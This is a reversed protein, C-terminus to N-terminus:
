VHARWTGSLRAAHAKRRFETSPRQEAMTEHSEGDKSTHEEKSKEEAGCPCAPHAWVPRAHWDLGPVSVEWRAGATSPTRGDLFALAHSAALAAVASALALDCAAVRRRQGSRWQAVLRPWTPDRDTRQRDLCGACGTDGPLVLPGVIEASKGGIRKGLGWTARGAFGLPLAALKATRTVAKRPLDSM